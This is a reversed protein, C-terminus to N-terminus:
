PLRGKFRRQLWYTNILIIDLLFELFLADSQRRRIRHDWENYSRLQDSHDVGGKQLNYKNAFAPLPAEKEYENAWFAGLQTTRPRRHTHWIYPEDSTYYTSFFLALSNDKWAFQNVLGGPYPATQLRNWTVHDRTNDSKKLAVLAGDIGSRIRATGTAAYGLYTHIYTFLAPSSFLNDLFVHYQSVPLKRLLTMVVQQTNNLKALYAEAQPANRTLGKGNPYPIGMPGENNVHWLWSFFYGNQGCVWVRFGRPTPKGKVVTAEKSRGTFRVMAEDITVKCGPNILSSSVRQIHKSFADVRAFLRPQSKDDKDDPDAIAFSRYIAKWRNKSFFRAIPHAPALESSQWYNDLQNEQHLGMYIISALFLRIKHPITPQGGPWNNYPSHKKRPQGQRSQRDRRKNTNEAFSNVTEPTLFLKFLGLATHPLTYIHPQRHPDSLAIPMFHAAQDAAAPAVPAIPQQVGLDGGEPASAENLIFKLDMSSITLTLNVLFCTQLTLFSPTSPTPSSPTAPSSSSLSTTPAYRSTQLPLFHFLPDANVIRRYPRWLSTATGRQGGSTQQEWGLPRPKKNDSPIGGEWVERQCTDPQCIPQSAFFEQLMSPSVLRHLRFSRVM